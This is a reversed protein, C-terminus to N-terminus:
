LNEQIWEDFTQISENKYGWAYKLLKLVEERSWSTKEEVSKITITNDPAVKLVSIIEFHEPINCGDTIDAKFCNCEKKYKTEYEVLVKDIKGQAKVFAKLFDDSPRPLNKTHLTNGVSSGCDVSIKYTLSEDTTAIIKKCNKYDGKEIEGCASQHVSFNNKIYWDGEKIEESSIIYLHQPEGDLVSATKLYMLGQSKNHMLWLDSKTETPLMIVQAEKYSKGGIQILKENM